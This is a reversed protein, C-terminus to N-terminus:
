KCSKCAVTTKYCICAHDSCSLTIVVLNTLLVQLCRTIRDWLGRSVKLFLDFEAYQM